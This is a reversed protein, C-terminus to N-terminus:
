VVQQTDQVLKHQLFPTPLPKFVPRFVQGNLMCTYSRFGALVGKPTLCNCGEAADLLSNLQLVSSTGNIAKQLGLLNGATLPEGAKLRAIHTSFAKFSLQKM